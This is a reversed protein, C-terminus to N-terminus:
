MLADTRCIWQPSLLFPDNCQKIGIYTGSPHWSTKIQCKQLFSSAYPFILLQEKSKSSCQFSSSDIGCCPATLLEFVYDQLIFTARESFRMSHLGQFRLEFWSRIYFPLHKPVHQYDQHRSTPLISPVRQDVWNSQSTFDLCVLSNIKFSIPLTQLSLVM